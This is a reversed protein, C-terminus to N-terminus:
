GGEERISAVLAECAACGAACWGGRIEHTLDDWKPIPRGDHTVGGVEKSYEEFTVRGLEEINLTM